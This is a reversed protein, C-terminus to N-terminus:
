WIDNWLSMFNTKVWNGMTILSPMTIGFMGLLLGILLYGIIVRLCDKVSKKFLVLMILCIIALIVLNTPISVAFAYLNQLLASIM